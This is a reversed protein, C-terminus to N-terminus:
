KVKKGQSAFAGGISSAAQQIGQALLEPRNSQINWQRGSNFVMGSQPSAATMNNAPRSMQSQPMQMQPMNSFFARIANAEQERKLRKYEESRPDDPNTTYTGKDDHASKTLDQETPQSNYLDAEYKAVERPISEPSSSQIGQNMEPMQMQEPSGGM